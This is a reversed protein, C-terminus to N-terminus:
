DKTAVCVGEKMITEFFYDQGAQKEHLRAPTIPILTMPPKPRVDRIARRLTRAAELQREAGEAVVCLDVDSDRQQEGRAFSGFLVVREVPYVRGFAKLCEILGVEPGRLPEPINEMLLKM